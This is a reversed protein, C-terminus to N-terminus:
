IKAISLTTGFELPVFYRNNDYLPKFVSTKRKLPTFEKSVQYGIVENHIANVIDGAIKLTNDTIKGGQGSQPMTNVVGVVVLWSQAFQLVNPTRVNTDSNVEDGVYIVAVVNNNKVVNDLDATDAINVVQTTPLVLRLKDVLAQGVDFYGM